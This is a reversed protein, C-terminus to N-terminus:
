ATDPEIHLINGENDETVRYFCRWRLNVGLQELLSRAVRKPEYEDFFQVLIIAMPRGRDDKRQINFIPRVKTTTTPM